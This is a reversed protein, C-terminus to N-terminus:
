RTIVPFSGVITGAKCKNRESIFKTCNRLWYQATKLALFNDPFFKSPSFTIDATAWNKEPILDATLLRTESLYDSAHFIDNTNKLTLVYIGTM